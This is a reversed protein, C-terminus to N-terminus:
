PMQWWSPLKSVVQSVLVDIKASIAAIGQEVTRLRGDLGDMRGELRDMRSELGNMRAEVAALRAEMGPDHPGGGAAAVDLTRQSERLGKNEAVVRLLQREVDSM